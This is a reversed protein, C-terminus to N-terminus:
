KLPNKIIVRKWASRMLQGQNKQIQSQNAQTNIGESFDQHKKYSTM